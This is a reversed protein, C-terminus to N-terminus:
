SLRLPPAVPVPEAEPTKFYKVEPLQATGSRNMVYVGIFGALISCATAILGVVSSESYEKPWNGSLFLGVFTVGVIGIVIALQVM